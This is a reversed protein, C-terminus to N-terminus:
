AGDYHIVEVGARSAQRVMDATGKSRALDEHFAVVLDPKGEMLMQRNRVSGAARGYRDWLAPYQEVTVGREEAWERAFTDAGPAEGEIITTIGAFTDIDDLKGYLYQRDHWNRDGCVLVRSM